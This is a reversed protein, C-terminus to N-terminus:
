TYTPCPVLNGVTPINRTIYYGVIMGYVVLEIRIVLENSGFLIYSGFVVFLTMQLFWKIRERRLRNPINRVFSFRIEAIFVIGADESTVIQISAFPSKAVRIISPMDNDNNYLVGSWRFRWNPTRIDFSLRESPVDQTLELMPVPPISFVLATKDSFEYINVNDTYIQDNTLSIFRASINNRIRKALEDTILPDDAFLRSTRSLHVFDRITLFSSLYLLLYPDDIPFYVM